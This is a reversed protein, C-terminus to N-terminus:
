QVRGRHIVVVNKVIYVNVLKLAANISNYINVFLHSVSVVEFESM